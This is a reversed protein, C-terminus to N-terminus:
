VQPPQDGYLSRRLWKPLHPWRREWELRILENAVAVPDNADSTFGMRTQSGSLFDRLATEDSEDTVKLSVPGNRIGIIAVVHGDLTFAAEYEGDLVARSDMSDAADEIRPFAWAEGDRDFILVATPNEQMSGDHLRPGGM